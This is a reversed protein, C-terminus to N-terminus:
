KSHSAVEKKNIKKHIKTNSKFCRSSCYYKIAGARTVYMTGTGKPIEKSCYSCKM